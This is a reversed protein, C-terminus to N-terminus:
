SKLKLTNLHFQKLELDNGQSDGSLEENDTNTDQSEGSENDAELEAINRQIYEADVTTAGYAGNTVISIDILKAISEITRVPIDSDKHWSDDRAIFAFSCEAFDGRQVMEWLDNGETTNPVLLRFYLGTEDTSLELTGSSTRALMREPNHNITAIVNSRDAEEFAGESIYEYFAIRQGDQPEVIMRSRSNFIAAYGSVYRKGGEETYSRVQYGKESADLMRNEKKM